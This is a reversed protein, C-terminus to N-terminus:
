WLLLVPYSFLFDAQIFISLPYLRGRHLIAMMQLQVNWFVGAM